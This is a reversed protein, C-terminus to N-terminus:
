TDTRQHARPHTTAYVEQLTSISVKTYIQTTTVNAHGLLEQVVRIDAGGELMHTAFSHRFTHPSIHSELGALDAAEQVVLWASQRSLQGGRSNLLLKSSGTGHSALDPRARTIYAEIAERGYGGIPVIREKRGKGFLTVLAPQTSFDVDDVDLNVAETIRAGTGYLIELLARNRLAVSGTGVQVALLRNIQAVSLAKPLRDPRKPASIRAAPDETNTEAAFFNHLGRVAALTRAVSSAALPREGSSLSAVFASIQEPQVDALNHIAHNELFSRYKELDSRYAAVTNTSASRELAVYDLYRRM